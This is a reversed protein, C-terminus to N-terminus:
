LADGKRTNKYAYEPCRMRLTKAFVDRLPAADVWPVIKEGRRLGRLAAWYRQKPEPRKEIPQNLIQVYAALDLPLLSVNADPDTSKLAIHAEVWVFGLARWMAASHRDATHDSVGDPKANQPFYDEVHCPYKPVCVLRIGEVGTEDPIRGPTYSCILNTNYLGPENLVAERV